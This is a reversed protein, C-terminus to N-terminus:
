EAREMRVEDGDRSLEVFGQKTYFALANTNRPDVDLRVPGTPGLRRVLAQLLRHGLGRRQYLPTVYLRDVRREGELRRGSAMAVVSGGVSGDVSGDVSGGVSGDVEAIMFVSDPAICQARLRDIAHWSDTIRTVAEAGMFADYTAHWTTVLVERIADVDETTAVRIKTAGDM